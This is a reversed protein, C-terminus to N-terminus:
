LMDQPHNTVLMYLLIVTGPVMLTTNRSLAETKRRASIVYKLLLHWMFNTGTCCSEVFFVPAFTNNDGTLGNM